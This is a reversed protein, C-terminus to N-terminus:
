GRRTGRRPRHIGEFGLHSEVSLGRGGRMSIGSGRDIVAALNQIVAGGARAKCCGGEGGSYPSPEPFIMSVDTPGRRERGKRTGGKATLATQMIRGPGGRM